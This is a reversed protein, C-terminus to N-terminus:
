ARGDTVTVITRPESKNVAFRVDRPTCLKWSDSAIVGAQQLADLIFKKAFAVNDKDSRADPRIWEFQVTVEGEFHPVIGGMATVIREQTKRKMEAAAFRNARESDVYQNLTPLTGPIEFTFRM